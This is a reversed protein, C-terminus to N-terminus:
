VLRGLGDERHDFFQASPGIRRARPFHVAARLRDQAGGIFQLEIEVVAIVIRLLDDKQTIKVLEQLLHDITRSASLMM